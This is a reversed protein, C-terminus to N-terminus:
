YCRILAKASDIAMKYYGENPNSPNTLKEDKLQDNSYICARCEDEFSMNEPIVDFQVSGFGSLEGGIPCSAIYPIKGNKNFGVLQRGQGGFRLSLNGVQEQAEELTSVGDDPTQVSMAALSMIVDKGDDTHSSPIIVIGIPTYQSDPYTEQSYESPKCHVMKSGQKDYM